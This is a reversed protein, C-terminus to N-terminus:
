SNVLRLFFLTSQIPFGILTHHFSRVKTLITQANPIEEGDPLTKAYAPIPTAHITTKWGGNSVVKYVVGNQGQAHGRSVTQQLELEQLDPFVAESHVQSRQFQIQMHDTLQGIRKALFPHSYNRAQIANIPSHLLVLNLTQQKKFSLKLFPRVARVRQSSYVRCM